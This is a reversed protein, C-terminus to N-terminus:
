YGGETKDGARGPLKPKKYKKKKDKGYMEIDGCKEAFYTRCEHAINRLSYQLSEAAKKKPEGPMRAYGKKKTPHVGPLHGPDSPVKVGSARAKRQLDVLRHISRLHGLERETDGSGVTRKKRRADAPIPPPGAELFARVRSLLNVTEIINMTRGLGEKHVKKLKSYYRPDEKLHDMAIEKALRRNKTHEMEVDIGMRLQEPDFDSPKSRDAMGGPIRDVHKAM